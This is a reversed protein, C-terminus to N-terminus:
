KRFIPPPGEEGQVKLLEEALRQSCERMALLWDGIQKIPDDFVGALMKEVMARLDCEFTVADIRGDGPLEDEGLAGYRSFQGAASVAVDPDLCVYIRGPQCSDLWFLRRNVAEDVCECESGNHKFTIMRKTERAKYSGTTM